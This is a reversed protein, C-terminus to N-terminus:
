LCLYRRVDVLQLKIYLVEIVSHGIDVEDGVYRERGADRVAELTGFFAEFDVELGVRVHRKAKSVDALFLPLVHKIECLAGDDGLGAVVVKVGKDEGLRREEDVRSLYHQLSAAGGSQKPANRTKEVVSAVEVKLNIVYDERTFVEEEGLFLLERMIAPVVFHGVQVLEEITM